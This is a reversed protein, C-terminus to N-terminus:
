HPCRHACWEHTGAGVPLPSCDVPGGTCQSIESSRITTRVYLRQKSRELVSYASRLSRRSEPGRPAEPAELFVQSGARRWAGDAEVNFLWACIAALWAANVALLVCCVRMRFSRSPRM